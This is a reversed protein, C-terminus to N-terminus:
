TKERRFHNESLSSYRHQDFLAYLPDYDSVIVDGSSALYTLGHGAAHAHCLLRQCSQAKSIHKISKGGSSDM